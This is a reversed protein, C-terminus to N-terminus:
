FEGQDGPSFGGTAIGPSAEGTLNQSMDYQRQAEAEHMSHERADLDAKAMHQRDLENEIRSIDTSLLAIDEASGLKAMELEAKVKMEMMKIRENSEIKMAELNNKADLERQKQEAEGMLANNQQTLQEIMQGQQDMYAKVQPPISQDSDKDDVINPPLGKKLRGALEDSHAIDLNRVIIDAGLQGVQPVAGALEILRESTEQRKTQYSPGTSVTVDYKGAGFDHIVTESGKQYEQNVQVMSPSGDEGIIRMMRPTDYIKPIADVLIRGVHRLARSLNDVFHFNGTQAQMNRRQIAIGSKENGSNGLAADFLGTTAKIDDASLGRMQTIAGVAPEGFNRQPPPQANGNIDLPNYELYADNDSNANRWRSEFGKFQGAAGVFPARPAMAVAEVECSAAYNYMRQSDKAHRHLSERVIEGDIEIEDGYVPVIPIYQSPFETKELAEIGNIKWHNVIVKQSDREKLKEVGDPLQEGDKLAEITQTQQGDSVLWLKVPEWTKFYYECVRAGEGTIWDPEKCGSDEWKALASLKSKPFQAEFDAKTMDEFAFGYTADSGDPEQHPGLYCTDPNRVSKIRLEQDFSMPDCYATIVRMYGYSRRVAGDFARDYAVDAGSSVEINRIVGQLVKATEIDAADDVPNVKISPRNQRQDNTVQHISAPIKNITLCPKQRKLRANKISDPWQEGISFLADERGLERIDSEYEACLKFRERALSIVDEDSTSKKDELNEATQM